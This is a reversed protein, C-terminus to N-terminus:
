IGTLKLVFPTNAAVDNTFSTITVAQGNIICTAGNYGYVITSSGDSNEDVATETKVMCTSGLTYAAPFDIIIYYQSEMVSPSTITFVYPFLLLKTVTATLVTPTATLFRMPSPAPHPSAVGQYLKFNVEDNTGTWEFWISYGCPPSSTTTGLLDVEYVTNASL